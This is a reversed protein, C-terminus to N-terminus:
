YIEHTLIYPYKYIKPLTELIKNINDNMLISKENVDSLWGYNVYCSKYKLIIPNILLTIEGLGGKENGMLPVESTYINTFVYMSDPIIRVYKSEKNKLYYSAYIYGTKLINKFSKFTTGHFFYYIM